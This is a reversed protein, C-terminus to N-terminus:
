LHCVTPTGTTACHLWIQSPVMPNCTRNRAENRPNPIQCQWSSHPKLQLCPKSGANSHSHHLGAATAGIQGRAQSNGHAELAARFLLVFCFLVSCCCFFIFQKTALIIYQFGSRILHCPATFFPMNYIPKLVLMSTNDRSSNKELAKLM